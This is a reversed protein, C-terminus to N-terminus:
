KKYGSLHEVMRNHKIGVWIRTTKDDSFDSNNLYFHKSIQMGFKKKSVSFLGSDKCWTVYCQYLANKTCASLKDLVCEDEVFSLVSNNEMRYDEM